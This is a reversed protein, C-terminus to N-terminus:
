DKKSKKPAPKLKKALAAPLNYTVGARLVKIKGNWDIETDKSLKVKAM